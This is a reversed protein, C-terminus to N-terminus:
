MINDYGQKFTSNQLPYRIFYILVEPKLLFYTPVCQLDRGALVKLLLRIMIQVTHLVM